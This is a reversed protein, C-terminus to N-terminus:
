GFIRKYKVREIYEDSRTDVKVKEDQEIFLPVQIVKGTELTAPKTGGSATNGRIGPETKIVKLEIFIPLNITIPETGDFLIDVEIGEILYDTTEGLVQKSIFIQEYTDSNMFVFQDDGQKYLFQMKKNEVRVDEVKEGSRYTKDLVQGTKINKLKTRVFAGGKGPKVHQFEVISFLESDIRLILGNRFDSTLAM